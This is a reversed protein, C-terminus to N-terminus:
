QYTIKNIIESQLQPVISKINESSSNTLLIIFMKSDPDIWLSSGNNSNNGFCKKSLKSCIHVESIFTEWGLGGYSDPLQPSTFKKVTSASIYQKGDYYGDQVMMQAFISIDATTSYLGDYGTVGGMIDKLLEPQSLYYGYRFREKRLINNSNSESDTTIFFTSEMGIPKFLKEDIFENLKKGSVNEIILQLLLSNLESYLVREGTQYELRTNLLANKLNNKNWNTNLSDITRGIGSNNLLLNKITIENKANVDFGPLYYNVEDNLSIIGDDVLLMVASTLAVSSTLSGINYQNKKILSDYSTSVPTGFTKQYIVEGDYGVNIASASLKEEKISNIVLSEVGGFISNNLSYFLQTETTKELQEGMGIRYETNPISVPLKGTVDSEGLIAKLCAQQSSRTFSYANLYTRANPTVSLMYPNKFCITIVPARLNLVKKIFKIQDKRIRENGEEEKVEMFVPMLILDSNKLSSIASKFERKKTKNTILLSNVNGLRRELIDQFFTATEGGEADTLTVCAINKYLSPDVPIINRDNKVLTISNSAIEEALVVHKENNIKDIIINTNLNQESQINLWRKAALIKRVSNDIREELIKGELVANYIASISNSPDPPMLIIDNGAMVTLVATEGAANYKRIADMNLADTVVLGDFGLTNILLDTIFKKSLSAPISDYAPVELHGIMISQVGTKIAEIFPYLENELLTRKDGSILPLETHSDIETNGHGPFHKVTSIVNAHKTGLIFSSVFESVTFKSESFSRINIVPNLANSNIDAVPAFNQHVGMLRSETGIAKGMDYAFQSDLNAGLAMNHPFELADDIRTGLGREFDASILLPIDSLVQMKKIFEIEQKLEGQFMILGGIKHDRVLAMTREYDPSTSDMYSRYVPAVIMQACKDYLTMERLTKEIWDKDDDNLEFVSPYLSDPQVTYHSSGSIQMKNPASLSFIFVASLVLVFYSSIQNKLTM